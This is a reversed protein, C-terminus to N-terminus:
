AGPNHKIHKLVLDGHELLSLDCYVLEDYQRRELHFRYWIDKAEKKTVSVMGFECDIFVNKAKKIAEQFTM